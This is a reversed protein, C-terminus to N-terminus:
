THIHTAAATAVQLRCSAVELCDECAFASACKEKKKENKRKRSMLSSVLPPGLGLRLGFKLQLQLSLQGM